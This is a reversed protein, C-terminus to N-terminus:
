FQIYVSDNEIKTKYSRVDTPAPPSLVKGSTVDFLSGHCGCIITTGDLAGDSGLSCQAHTCVDDVAFFEGDVNALAIDKGSTRFTRMSGPVVDIVKCVFVFNNMPVGEWSNVLGKECM